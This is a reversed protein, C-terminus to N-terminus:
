IDLLEGMSIKEMGKSSCFLRKIREVDNECVTIRTKDVERVKGDDLLIWVRSYRNSADINVVIGKTMKDEDKEKFSVRCGMLLSNM